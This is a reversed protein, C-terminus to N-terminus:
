RPDNEMAPTKRAPPLLFSFRAGGDPDNAALLRGGHAEVISRAIALGMGMGNKKTSYFQEFLRTAPVDTPLGPGHDRVAILVKGSSDLSTSIMLRRLNPPLAQMAELGNMVLNMLVQQMQVDVVDIQPLNPALEAEVSSERALFDTRMLKLVQRVVENIELLERGAGGPKVMSRIGRIIEGARKGATSIDQLLESMLEQDPPGQSIFRRAASANSVIATLPQNLEHALSATMEGMVAVRGLRAMEEHQQRMQMDQERSRTVDISVGAIEQLRGDPKRVLRARVVVWHIENGPFVLRYEHEFSLECQIAYKFRELAASRDEPHIRKLYDAHTGRTEPTFGYIKRAQETLWSRNEDPYWRWFGLMATEAALKMSTETQRLATEARKAALSSLLVDGVLQLSSILEQSWSKVDGRTIYCIGCIHKSTNRVPIVLLSKLDARTFYDREETATGPLDALSDLKVLQGAKLEGYIWPLPPVVTGLTPEEGSESHTGHTVLFSEMGAQLEFLFCQDLGMASRVRELADVVAEDVQEAPMNIFLISLESILKEFELRKRLAAEFRKRRDRHIFYGAAAGASLAAAVGGAWGIDSRAQWIIPAIGSSLRVEGPGSVAWAEAGAVAALGGLVCVAKRVVHWTAASSCFTPAAIAASM